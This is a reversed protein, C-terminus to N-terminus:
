WPKANNFEDELALKSVSAPMVNFTGNFGTDFLTTVKTGNVYVDEILVSDNAYRFPLTTQNLITKQDNSKQSLSKSYFGVLAKPFDIQVVRNKLFNHGIIGQLNIGIAKGIASLDTVAAELNKVKLKGIQLRSVRADFAVNSGTGSGSVKKGESTLELRIQKAAALDVVCVDTGTDLMMNFPGQGNIKVKLLILNKHLIFPVETLPKKQASASSFGIGFLIILGATFSILKHKM